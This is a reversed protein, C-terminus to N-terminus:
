CDLLARLVAHYRRAGMAHLRRSTSSLLTLTPTSAASNLMPAAARGSPSPM